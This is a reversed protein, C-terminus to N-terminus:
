SPKKACNSYAASFKKAGGAPRVDEISYGLPAEYMLSSSSSKKGGKSEMLVNVFTGQSSNNPLGSGSRARKSRNRDWSGKGRREVCIEIRSQLIERGRSSNVSKRKELSRRRRSPPTPPIRICRTAHPQPIFGRGPGDNIPGAAKHQDLVVKAAKLSLTFPLTKFSPRAFCLRRQERQPHRRLILTFSSVSPPVDLRQRRGQAGERAAGDGDSGAM